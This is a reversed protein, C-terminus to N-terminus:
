FLANAFTPWLRVDAPPFNLCRGGAARVLLIRIKVFIRTIPHKYQSLVHKHKRLSYELNSFNMMERYKM